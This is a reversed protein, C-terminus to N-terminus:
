FERKFIMYVVKIFFCTLFEVNSLTAGSIHGLFPFCNHFCKYCRLRPVTRQDPHKMASNMASNKFIFLNKVYFLMLFFMLHYTMEM